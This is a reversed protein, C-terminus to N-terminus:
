RGDWVLFNHQDRIEGTERHLVLVSRMKRAIERGHEVAEDETQCVITIKRGNASMVAWGSPHPIVHQDRSRRPRRAYYEPPKAAWHRAQAIAITTARSEEYGEEVLLNLAKIAHQRVDEPLRDLSKPYQERSFAM